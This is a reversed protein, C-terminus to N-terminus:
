EGRRKSNSKKSLNSIKSTIMTDGRLKGTDWACAKKISMKNLCGIKYTSIQMIVEGTIEKRMSGGARPQSAVLKKNKLLTSTLIFM